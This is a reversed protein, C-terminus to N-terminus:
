REQYEGATPRSDSLLLIMIGSVIYEIARMM